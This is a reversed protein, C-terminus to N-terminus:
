KSHGATHGRADCSQRAPQGRQGAPIADRLFHHRKRPVNESPNLVHDAGLFASPEPGRLDSRPAAGSGQRRIPQFRDGLILIAITVSGYCLVAREWSPREPAEKQILM